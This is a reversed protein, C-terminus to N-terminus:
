SCHLRSPLAIVFSLLAIKKQDRVSATLENLKYYVILGIINTKKNGIINKWM